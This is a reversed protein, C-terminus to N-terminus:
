LIGFLIDVYRAMPFKDVAPVLYKLRAEVTRTPIGEIEFEGGSVAEEELKIDDKIM